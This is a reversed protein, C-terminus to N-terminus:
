NVPGILVSPALLAHAPLATSSNGRRVVAATADAAAAFGRARDLFDQPLQVDTVDIGIKSSDARLAGIAQYEIPAV